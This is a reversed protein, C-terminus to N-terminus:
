MEDKLRGMILINVYEGDKVAGMRKLGEEVFGYKEYLGIAAENTDYVELEVRKLLLWNDALDLVAELLRTGIGMSHYDDAVMMGISGCHGRRSSFTSLNAMGVAEGDLEAVFLHTRSSEVMSELQSQFQEFSISPMGLTERAAIPSTRVRHLDGADAMQAPRIHIQDDQM